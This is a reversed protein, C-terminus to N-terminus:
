VPTITQSEVGTVVVANVRASRERLPAVQRYEPSDRWARFKEPSGFEILILRQPQWDGSMVTVDSGRALYKGGYQEVTRPVERIYKDYGQKDTVEKTEVIMYVSM